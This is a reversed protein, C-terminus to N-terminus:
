RIYCYVVLLYYSFTSEGPGTKVMLSERILAFLTTKFHVTGDDAAPM